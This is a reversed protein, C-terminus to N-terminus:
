KSVKAKVYFALWVARVLYSLVISVALGLALYRPILVLGALFLILAWCVTFALIYWMRGTSVVARTLVNCVAALVGGLALVIFIWVGEAFGEGYSAMIFPSLVSLVLAVGLSIGACAIVNYWLIKRFSIEDKAAYMNTMMPLAISGLAWPIFIIAQQWQNAAYYLAMEQYGQPQNVLMAMCLWMAGQALGPALSAPLSFDWLVKWERTGAKAHFSVGVRSTVLRLVVHNALLKVGASLVLGCVVGALGGWHAGGVLLPFAVLGTVLNVQAMPKFAELGALVGTQLEGLVIFVLLGAGLQLIESLHPANLVNEALWPALVWAVGAGLAATILSVRSLFHIMGGAREPQSERFAAVYKTATLPLGFGAFTAFMMITGLVIGLEGFAERGIIRAVVIYAVLQLGRASVAGAISWFAGKALRYELPSAELRAALKRPLFFFVLQKISM